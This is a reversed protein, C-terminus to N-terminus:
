RNWFCEPIAFITGCSVTDGLEMALQCASREAVTRCEGPASVVYAKEPCDMDEIRVKM